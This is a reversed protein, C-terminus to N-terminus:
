EARLGARGAALDLPGDRAALKLSTRIALELYSADYVSLEYQRSLDLLRAQDPPSSDVEVGLATMGDLIASTTAPNLKHRRELQYLANAFELHWVIPVHVVEEAARRLMKETYATAQGKVFWALVVSNDAVFAM